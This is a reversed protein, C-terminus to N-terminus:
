TGLRLRSNTYEKKSVHLLDNLTRPARTHVTAEVSTSARGSM